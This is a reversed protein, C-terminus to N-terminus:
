LPNQMSKGRATVRKTQAAKTMRFCTLQRKNVIIINPFHWGCSVKKIGFIVFVQWKRLIWFHCAGTMKQFGFIVSSQWKQWNWFHCAGTMKKLDLFSLHSDNKHVFIVCVQWKKECALVPASGGMNKPPPSLGVKLCRYSGRLGGHKQLPPESILRFHGLYLWVQAGRGFVHPAWPYNCIGTLPDSGGGLFMPPEACPKPTHFFIVPIQWKQIEFFSLWRDNRSKLFIVPAQCKQIKCFHCGGTVTQSRFFIVPAQWRKINQM